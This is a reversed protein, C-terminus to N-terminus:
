YQYVLSSLPSSPGVQMLKWANKFTASFYQPDASEKYEVFLMDRGVSQGYPRCASHYAVARSHARPLHRTPDSDSFTLSGASVSSHSQTLRADHLYLPLYEGEM